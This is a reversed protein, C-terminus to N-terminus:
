GTTDHPLPHDEHYLNRRTCSVKLLCWTHYLHVALCLNELSRVLDLSFLLTMSLNHCVAPRVNM